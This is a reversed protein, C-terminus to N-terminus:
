EQKHDNLYNRAANIRQMAADSGGKDPHNKLALRRYAKTIETPTADLKLGLIKLADERTKPQSNSESSSNNDQNERSSNKTSPKPKESKTNEDQSAKKPQEKRTNYGRFAAQIKTAAANQSTENEASSNTSETGADSNSSTESATDASSEDAFPKKAAPSSEDLQLFKGRKGALLEKASSKDDRGKSTTKKGEVDKILNRYDYKGTTGWLWGKEPMISEVLMQGDEKAITTITKDGGKDVTKIVSGNPEFTLSPIDAVSSDVSTINNDADLIITSKPKFKQTNPITVSGLVGTISPSLPQGDKATTPVYTELRDMEKNKIRVELINGRNGKVVYEIPNATDYIKTSVPVQDTMYLSDRYTATQTPNGDKFSTVSRTQMNNKELMNFSRPTFVTSESIIGNNDYTNNIKRGYVDQAEIIKSNNADVIRYSGDKSQIKVKLLTKGDKSWTEVLKDGPKAFPYNGNNTDTINRSIKTNKRVALNRFNNSLRNTYGRASTRSADFEQGNITNSELQLGEVDTEPQLGLEDELRLKQKTKANRAGPTGFTADHMRMLTRNIVGKTADIEAARSNKQINELVKKNQIKPATPQKAAPPPNSGPTSGLATQSTALFFGALM